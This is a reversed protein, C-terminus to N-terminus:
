AAVRLIVRLIKTNLRVIHRGSAKHTWRRTPKRRSDKIAQLQGHQKKLGGLISCSHSCQRRHQPLIMFELLLM